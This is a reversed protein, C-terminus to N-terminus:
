NAGVREPAGRTRSGMRPIWEVSGQGLSDDFEGTRDIIQIDM